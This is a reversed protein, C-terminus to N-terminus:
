RMLVYRLRGGQIRARTHRRTRMGLLLDNVALSATSTTKSFKRPVFLIAERVLRRLEMVRGNVVKTGKKRETMDEVSGIDEWRYFGLISAFQFYQVPTLKYSRRGNIGSFKLSEYLAVFVKM